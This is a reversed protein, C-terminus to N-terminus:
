SPAVSASEERLGSSQSPACGPAVAPHHAAILVTTAGKSSCPHFPVQDAQGLGPRDIM